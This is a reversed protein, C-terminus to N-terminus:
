RLYSLEKNQCFADLSYLLLVNDISNEEILKSVPELYDRMDIVYINKFHPILYPLMINAYSDKIILLSQDTISNSNNITIKGYNGNAYYLYKDKEDLRDKFYISNYEKNDITVTYNYDDLEIIKFIPEGQYYFLGSKSYLTGKFDNSVEKFTYNLPKMNLENMFTKYGIYAGNHNWHHDTKFYSDNTDKLPKYMDIYNIEDNINDSILSSLEIMNDNYSYKKLYNSNITNSDLVLMMHMDKNLDNVNNINLEINRKSLLKFQNFLYGQKGIYVKNNELKNMLNSIIANIMIFQDRFIFQDQMYLEISETYEGDLLTDLTFPIPKSLVRNENYSFTKSPSFVNFITMTFLLGLFLIITLKNINNKM